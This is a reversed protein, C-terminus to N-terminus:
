NGVRDASRAQDDPLRTMGRVLRHIPSQAKETRAGRAHFLSSVSSFSSHIVLLKLRLNFVNQELRGM